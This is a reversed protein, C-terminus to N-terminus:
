PIMKQSRLSPYLEPPIGLISERAEAAVFLSGTAVILDNENAITIAYQMAGEVTDVPHAEVDADRFVNALTDASVARPHRSQTTVVTPRNKSLENVIGSVNKDASVGVVIILHDFPFYHSLAENLKVASYPNHAGDVVVLPKESLVEMRGPWSVSQFGQKISNNSIAAGSANLVKLTVLATVANEIQHAGLLPTWLEFKGWPSNVVFSQGNMDASKYTWQCTKEVPVLDVLRDECTKELIRLVNTQQPSTIVVAGPKIIGAKDKAISEVTDGLLSTHDLSISTFVCAMPQVLNTSDLQGGVGVEIVQFDAQKQRFHVFAMATLFEFTTVAEDFEQMNVYESAPWVQDVLSSFECESIPLGNVQIRERFTHLHPSTFLGATYGETALVSAISAATSGKGKTGTVHVTPIQLHPNGLCELLLAVRNLNLRRRYAVGQATHELDTLSLLKVLSSSYDM